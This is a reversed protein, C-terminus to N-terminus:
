FNCDAPMEMWCAYFTLINRDRITKDQPLCHDIDPHSYSGLMWFSLREIWTIHAMKLSYICDSAKCLLGHALENGLYDDTHDYKRPSAALIILWLLIQIRTRQLYPQCSKQFPFSGILGTSQPQCYIQNSIQPLYSKVNAAHDQFYLRTAAFGTCLLICHHKLKTVLFISCLQRQMNRLIDICM